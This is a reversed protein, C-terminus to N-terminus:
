IRQKTGHSAQCSSNQNKTSSSVLQKQQQHRCHRQPLLFQFSAVFASTSKVSQQPGGLGRLKTEKLRSCRRGSQSQSDILCRSPKPDPWSTAHAFSGRYTPGSVPPLKSREKCQDSAHLHWAQIGQMVHELFFSCRGARAVM